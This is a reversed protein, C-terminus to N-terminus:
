VQKRPSNGQNLDWVDCMCSFEMHTEAIKERSSEGKSPIKAARSATGTRCSNECIDDSM